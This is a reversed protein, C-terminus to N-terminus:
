SMAGKMGDRFQGPRGAAKLVVDLIMQEGDFRPQGQTADVPQSTQNIVNVVVDGMGGKMTVPITKGDPLPVYAENMSGEGYLAIQPSNAIGGTAYSRMMAKGYKTMVGGTAFKAFEDGSLVGATGGTYGTQGSIMSNVSSGGLSSFLGVMQQRIQIRILDSIISNALEKFSSKGTMVFDTLANAAGDIWSVAAEELASSTDQWQRLMAKIPGESDRVFKEQLATLYAYYREEIAAKEDANMKSTDVRQRAIDLEYEYNAKIQDKESLLGTRIANTREQMDAVYKATRANTAMNVTTDMIGSLKVLERQAAPMAEVIKELQKRLAAVRGGDAANGGSKILSMAEEFDIAAGNLATGLNSWGTETAKLDAKTTKLEKTANTFNQVIVRAEAFTMKFKDIFDAESMGKIMSNFKEVEGSMGGIEARAMATKRVLGDLYTKLSSVPDKAMTGDTLLPGSKLRELQKALTDGYEEVAKESDEIKAKTQLVLEDPILNSDLSAQLRKANDQHVKILNTYLERVAVEQEQHVADKSFGGQLAEDMFKMQDDYSSRTADLEAQLHRKNRARGIEAERDDMEQKSAWYNEGLLVLEDTLKKISEKYKKAEKEKDGFYSFAKSLNHLGQEHRAIMKAKEDMAKKTEELEKQGGDRENTKARDLADEAADGYAFWATAGLSLMTTIIGIPGGLAGVTASLARLATGAAGVRMAMFSNARAFSRTHGEAVLLARGYALTRLRATSLGTIM